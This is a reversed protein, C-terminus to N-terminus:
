PTSLRRGTHSSIHDLLKVCGYAAMALASRPGAAIAIIAISALAATDLRPPHTRAPILEQQLRWMERGDVLRRPVAGGLELDGVVTGM